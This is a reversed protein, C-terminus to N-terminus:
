YRRVRNIFGLCMSSRLILFLVVLQSQGCQNKWLCKYLIAPNVGARSHRPKAIDAMRPQIVVGSSALHTRLSKQILRVSPFLCLRVASLLARPHTVKLFAVQGLFRATKM